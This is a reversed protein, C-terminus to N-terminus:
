YKFPIVINIVTNTYDKSSYYIQLYCEGAPSGSFFSVYASPKQHSKGVIIILIGTSM